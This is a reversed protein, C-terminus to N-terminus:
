MRPNSTLSFVLETKANCTIRLLFPCHSTWHAAKGNRVILNETPHRALQVRRGLNTYQKQGDYCNWDEVVDICSVGSYMTVIITVMWGASTWCDAEIIWDVSEWESSAAIEYAAAQKVLTM